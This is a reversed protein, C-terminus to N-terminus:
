RRKAGGGSSGGGPRRSSGASSRSGAGSSRMSGGSSRSRSSMSPSKSSPRSGVSSSRSRSGSSSASPPRASPRSGASPSRTTPSAGTTPPKASPLRVTPGTPQARTSPKGASTGTSPPTVLPRSAGSGSAPSRPVLSPREGGTSLTGGSTPAGFITPRYRNPSEIRRVGSNSFPSSSGTTLSPTTIQRRDIVGSTGTTPALGARGSPPLATSGRSLTALSTPKALNRAVDPNLSSDRALLPTVDTPSRVSVSRFVRGIEASPDAAAPSRTTLPGSLTTAVVSGATPMVRDGSRALRSLSPSDFETEPVVTWGRRDVEALRVRGSLEVARQAGAPRQQLPEALAGGATRPPRVDGRDPRAHGGGPHPPRTDAYPPYYGGGYHNWYWSNYYGYPCWGVYGPWYIWNVWAPGWHGGWSWLWGSGASFHWSGYHYPLWGWPEYSIWAWGTPTWYWRGARYPQWDAGVSPQWAWSNISDEYVWTGYNDLQAAQRSYRLDVHRGSEGAVAQRRIDVWAAFDDGRGLHPETQVVEGGGIEAATEARILIGGASTAAEALGAAVEVRLGGAPLAQLRYLGPEDLYVTAGSSDVRLARDSLEFRSVEVMMGGEALYLVTREAEGDRSFAVADLSVTAYEDIWVTNGDALVIEMRAERATDIRDGGVLPMNIVAELSEDGAAPRVTAYRELYSIYSLSTLDDESSAMVPGAVALFTMVALVKKM